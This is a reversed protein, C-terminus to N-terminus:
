SQRPRVVSAFQLYRTDLGFFGLTLIHYIYPRHSTTPNIGEFNLVEFNLREFMRLISKKTYFRLHTRDLIGWDQYEWDKDVFLSKLNRFYRVNPIATIFVGGPKLKPVLSLLLKEPDILHELVDNFFIAGFYSDPLDGVCDVISGHIVKDLKNKAAAAQLDRIEVGWVEANTIQKISLGFDGVACGVDLVAQINKPLFKLMEPRYLDLGFNQKEIKM